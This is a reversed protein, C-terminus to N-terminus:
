FVYGAGLGFERRELGVDMNTWRYDAKLILENMPKYAFGGTIAKHSTWGITTFIEEPDLPMIQAFAYSEYRIFPHLEAESKELLALLNYSIEAYGGAIERPVLDSADGTTIFAGEARIRLPGHQYQADLDGLAFARSFLQTYGREFYGSAGFELGMMPQFNLKGSLAPHSADSGASLDSTEGGASGEQKAPDLGEMTIAQTKLGETIYLQYSITRSANGYIGTGIEAWTSPIVTQDFLPREVSYFTTPEHTQNMIGIPLVLLGGRWGLWNTARYDLYAQEIGIEGGAGGEIKVHEIETESKFMWRNDFSHDLYIVFRSIDLRPVDGNDFHQYNMEGYGGLYTGSSQAFVPSSALFLCFLFVLKNLNLRLRRRLRPTLKTM